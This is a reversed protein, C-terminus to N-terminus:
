RIHTHLEYGSDRVKIKNSKDVPEDDLKRLQEYGLARMERVLQEYEKIMDPISPRVPAKKETRMLLFEWTNVCQSLRPLVIEM